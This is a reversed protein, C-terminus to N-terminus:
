NDCFRGTKHDHVSMASRTRFDRMYKKGCKSCVELNTNGLLESLKEPPFGSRRHM